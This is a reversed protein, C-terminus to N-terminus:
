ARDKWGTIDLIHLVATRTEAQAAFNENAIASPGHMNLVRAIQNLNSGIKNLQAIALALLEANVSPSRKARPGPSGLGCARLYAAQSLGAASAKAALAAHEEPTVSVGITRHRQRKQSGSRKPSPSRHAASM